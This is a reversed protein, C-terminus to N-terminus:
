LKKEWYPCTYTMGFFFLSLISFVVRGEESWIIPNPELSIFVCVAYLVAISLFSSILRIM